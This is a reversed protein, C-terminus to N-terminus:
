LGISSFAFASTTINDGCIYWFLQTEEDVSKAQKVIVTNVVIIFKNNNSPGSLTRTWTEQCIKKKNNHLAISCIITQEIAGNSNYQVM